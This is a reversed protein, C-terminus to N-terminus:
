CRVTHGDRSRAQSKFIVKFERSKLVVPLVSYWGSWRLSFIVAPERTQVVPVDEDSTTPRTGHTFITHEHDPNGDHLLYRRAEEDNVKGIVQHMGNKFFEASNGQKNLVFEGTFVRDAQQLLNTMVVADKVSNSLHHM